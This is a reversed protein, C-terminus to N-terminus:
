HKPSYTMFFQALLQFLSPFEQVFDKGKVEM